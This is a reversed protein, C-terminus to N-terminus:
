TLDGGEIEHLINREENPRQLVKENKVCDTWIIKEM